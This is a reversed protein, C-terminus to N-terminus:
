SLLENKMGEKSFQRTGTRGTAPSDRCTDLSDPADTRVWPPQSDIRGMRVPSDAQHPLNSDNQSSDVVTTEGITLLTESLALFALGIM